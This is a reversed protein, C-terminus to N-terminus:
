QMYVTDLLVKNANKQYGMINMDLIEGNSAIKFVTWLTGKRNKPVEYTKLLSNGKYVKVIAGSKSLEMAKEAKDDSENNTYNHVAYSVNKLKEINGITITEPGYSNTDDVDLKAETDKNKGYYVHVDEGSVNVGRLHADLDEVTDGWTLVIRYTKAKMKKSLAITGVNVTGRIPVQITAFNTVFNKARIELVYTGASLNEIKFKGKKTSSYGKSNGVIEGKATKRHILYTAKKRKGNVANSFYGTVVGGRSRAAQIAMGANVMPVDGSTNTSKIHDKAIKNTESLILKQVEAGTFEKNVSWIMSAAAAVIPAAMSTGSLKGYSNGPLTSYIDRGPATINVNSGGNSFSTQQYANGIKEAAGVIFLRNMIEEKTVSKSAYCNEKTISCFQGNYLADVGVGDKAGNGASQVVVFDFGKELLKGLATSASRGWSNIQMKTYKSDHSKLNGSSGLSMTVVKCGDEIAEIYLDQIKTSTSWKQKGTPFCDYGYIHNMWALGTIGKGNNASAAIIGAVHTGHTEVSNEQRRIKNSFRIQYDEHNTDFGNDVIGIRVPTMEEAYSWAEPANVAEAWWNEEAPIDVNWKSANWPDNYTTDEAEYVIWEPEAAIIEPYRNCLEQAYADLEELSVYSNPLQVQYLQITQLNGIVVCGIEALIANRRSHETEEQFYLNLRNNVYPMDGDGESIDSINPTDNIEGRNYTLMITEEAVAGGYTEAKVIIENKGPSVELEEIEWMNSGIIANGSTKEEEKSAEDLIRYSIERIIGNTEYTGKITPRIDTVMINEQQIQLRIYEEGAMVNPNVTVKVTAKQNSGDLARIIIQTCGEGVAKVRGHKSVTVVKKDKSQYTLNRNSAKLPKIMVGIDASQGKQLSLVKKRPVISKIKKYKKKNIVKVKIKIKKKPNDTSKVTLSASGTKLAKVTGSATVSIINKKSFSYSVAKKKATSPSLRIGLRYRQGKYLILKGTPVRELTIDTVKPSKKSTAAVDIPLTIMAAAVSLILGMLYVFMRRKKSKKQEM